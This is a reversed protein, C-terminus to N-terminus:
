RSLLALERVSALISKYKQTARVQTALNRLPVIREVSLYFAEPEFAMAVSAAM